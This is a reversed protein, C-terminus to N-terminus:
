SQPADGKIHPMRDEAAAVVGGDVLVVEIDAAGLRHQKVAQYAPCQYWRKAAAM